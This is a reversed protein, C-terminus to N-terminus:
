PKNRAKLVFYQLCYINTFKQFVIATRITYLFPLDLQCRIQQNIFKLMDLHKSLGLLLRPVCIKRANSHSKKHTFRPTLLPSVRKHKSLNSANTFRKECGNLQCPYPKEGTHVRKHVSLSSSASFKKQCEDCEYEKVGTHVLVHRKLSQADGLRQHCNSCEYPKDGTDLILIGFVPKCIVFCEPGRLSGKEMGCADLGNVYMFMREM